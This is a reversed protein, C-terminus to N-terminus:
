GSTPPAWPLVRGPDKLHNAAKMRNRGTATLISDTTSIRTTLATACSLRSAILFSGSGPRAAAPYRSKMRSATSVDGEGSLKDNGPGGEISAAGGLGHIEDTGPGGDIADKGDGGFITDNGGLGGITDTGSGRGIGSVRSTQM